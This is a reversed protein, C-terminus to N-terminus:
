LLALLRDALVDSMEQTRSQWDANIQRRGDASEVWCGGLIPISEHEFTMAAEAVKENVRKAIREGFSADIAALRLKLPAHTALDRAASVALATLIDEYDERERLHVLADQFNRLADQLLRNQLRLLETTKEKEAALIQRRHIEEARNQADAIVANAERDLKAMEAALWQEAEKRAEADLSARQANAHELIINQLAIIKENSVIDNATGTSPTNATENM